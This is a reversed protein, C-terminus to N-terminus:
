FTLKIGGTFTRFLPYTTVGADISEPDVDKIKTITFLNAGRLFIRLGKIGIKNSQKLPTNFGLEVNQLKFYGGKRLWLRSDLFYNTARSYRLIPYAGGLNDRVFASYNDDGWGNRFYANTLPIDYFARGTGVITLDLWKYKMFLNVSYFLKPITNGIVAKDNDDVQGDGNLDAYMQLRQSTEDESNYPGKYVYGWYDGELTGAQRQYDWTYIEDIKLYKSEQLTASGGISYYFNGVHNRYQVGLEGGYYRMSNYNDYLETSGM